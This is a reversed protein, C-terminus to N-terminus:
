CSWFIFKRKWTQGPISTIGLDQEQAPSTLGVGGSFVISSSSKQKYANGKIKQM